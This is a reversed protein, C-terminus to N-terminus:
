VGLEKFARYRLPWLRKNSPRTRSRDNHFYERVAPSQDYAMAVADYFLDGDRNYNGGNNNGDAVRMNRLTNMVLDEMSTRASIAIVGRPKRSGLLEYRKQQYEPYCQQMCMTMTQTDKGYNMYCHFKMWDPRSRHCVECIRYSIISDRDENAEQGHSDGNRYEHVEHAFEIYCNQALWETDITPTTPPTTVIISM